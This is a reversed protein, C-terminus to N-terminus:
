WGLEAKLAAVLLEAMKEHTKLSPHYSCGLGDAASQPPMDFTTMNDDGSDAVAMAIYRRARDLEAGSLLPGCTCLIRARPYKERLHLLFTRYAAVFEMESPDQSTSLDNTGLNVIVADPQYSAFDWRSDSRSPLTRDYYSPLPNTCSQPEDGYNCVIGLGSWAVTNLEAGLRRAAIAGYTLYHNETEPTFSCSENAGENGFGCTISDGIIELRRTPALPAALLAGAADFSFGQFQSIGQSAETRRYLEVTHVASSLGSAISTSGAGPVLKPRLVGDILVTYEQGGTLKVALSSGMFRAVVGSGSWAFRGGTADSRDVRGVYRVAPAAESDSGADLVTEADSGAADSAGADSEASAADDTESVDAPDAADGPEADASDDESDACAVLSLALVGLVVSRM